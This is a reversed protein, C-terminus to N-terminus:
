RKFEFQRGEYRGGLALYITTDSGSGRIPFTYIFGHGEDNVGILSLFYRHPSEYFRELTWTGTQRYSASPVPSEGNLAGQSVNRISFTGDNRIDVTQSTDSPHKWLGIVDSRRVTPVSCGTLAFVLMLAVIASYKRLRKVEKALDERDM